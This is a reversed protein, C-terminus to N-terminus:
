WAHEVALAGPLRRNSSLAHKAVPEGGGSECWRCVTETEDQHLFSGLHPRNVQRRETAADGPTSSQDGMPCISTGPARRKFITATESRSVCKREYLYIVVM